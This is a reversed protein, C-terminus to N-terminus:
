TKPRIDTDDADSYFMQSKGKQVIANGQQESVKVIVRGAESPTNITVQRWNGTFSEANDEKELDDSGFTILESKLQVTIELITHHLNDIEEELVKSSVITYPVPLSVSAFLHYVNVEESKNLYILPRFKKDPAAM